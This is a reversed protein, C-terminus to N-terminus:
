NKYEFRAVDSEGLIVTDGSTLAIEKVRASKPDNVFTGNRSDQDIITVRGERVGIWVHRKSIRPDPIVIQSLNSDRGICAGETTLDFQKGALVGSVFKISGLNVDSTDGSPAIAITQGLDVTRSQDAAGAAPSIPPSHMPAAAKAPSPSYNPTPSPSYAPRSPSPISSGKSAAAGSGAAIARAGAQAKGKRRMILFVILGILLLGFILFLIAIGGAVLWWGPIETNQAIFNINQRTLRRPDTQYDRAVQKVYASFLLEKAKDEGDHFVQTVHANTAIYGNPNIFFGSGTGIYSVQYTKVKTPDPPHYYFSGYPGVYVKVVAPKCFMSLREGDSVAAVAIFGRQMPMLAVVLFLM